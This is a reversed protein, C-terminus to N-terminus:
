SPEVTNWEAQQLVVRYGDPDEFTRGCNDWYPNFSAVQTFGAALMDNCRTTWETENPIYLVMLDEPTPTPAVAHTRCRTFEFHYGANASALMVGDFGEHNQFSGVVRLGLGRCYM